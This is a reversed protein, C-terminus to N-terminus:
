RNVAGEELGNLKLMLEWFRVFDEAGIEICSKDFFDYRYKLSKDARIVTRFREAFEDPANYRAPTVGVCLYTDKVHDRVMVLLPRERAEGGNPRFTFMVQLLWVAFKRIVVPHRLMLPPQEIKCYLFQRNRKMSKTDQILRALSQIEKAVKVAEKIGDRILQPETCNAADWARHFNEVMWQRELENITAIDRHGSETKPLLDVRTTSLSPHGISLLGTLMHVADCSSMDHLLLAATGEGLHGVDRVFQQIFMRNDTLGYGKGHRQFKQSLGRRIGRELLSYMQKYEHPPIGSEAFFGKMNRIGKDRNLELAGYFYASHMMSEELTWHKYLTLRLDKEFRLPSKTLLSSRPAPRRRPAAAGEDDSATPAAASDSASVGQTMSDSFFSDTAASDLADKLEEYALRSYEVENILGQEYYSTLAVAALWLLDQSPRAAQKALKFLSMAAPTAYYTGLYYENIRRRKSQRRDELALRRKRREAAGSQQEGSGAPDWVNEKEDEEEEEPAGDVDEDADGDEDIPPKLGLDEAIPNDDLVVVRTNRSQLNQLLLPRHADVVFCRLDEPARSQELQRQLDLGGGCNILVLSKVESSDDLKQLYDIIDSNGRVPSVSLLVRAQRLVADLIKGACVGDHDVAALIQVTIGTGQAGQRLAELMELLARGEDARVSRVVM